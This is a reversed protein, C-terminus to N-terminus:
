SQNAKLFDMAKRLVRKTNEFTLKNLAKDYNLWAFNIHEDSSLVIKKTKTKILYFTVKKAILENRKFYYGISEEFDTILEAKTIGTEEKLERLITDKKTEGNEIHGKVFGWHGQSYNLLLFKDGRVVVAGVSEETRM